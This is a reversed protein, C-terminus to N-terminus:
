KKVSKINGLVSIFGVTAMKVEDVPRISSFSLLANILRICQNM